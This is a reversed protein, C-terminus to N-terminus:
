CVNKCVRRYNWRNHGTYCRKRSYYCKLSTKKVKRTGYKVCVTRNSRGYKICSGKLPCVKCRRVNRCIVKYCRKNVCKNRNYCYRYRFAKWKCCLKTYCHRYSKKYSCWVRKYCRYKVLRCVTRYCTVKKCIKVQVKRYCRIYRCKRCWKYCIKAVRCTTYYCKTVYKCYLKNCCYKYGIRRRVIYTRYYKKWFCCRYSRKVYKVIPVYKCYRYRYCRVKFCRIPTCIRRKSCVLKKCRYPISIYYHVIKSCTKWCYKSRLSRRYRTVWKCCQIKRCRVVKKYRYSVIRKRCYKTRYVYYPCLTM